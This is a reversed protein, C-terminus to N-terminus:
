DEGLGGCVATGCFLIVLPYCPGFYLLNVAPWSVADIFSFLLLRSFVAALLATSVAPLLGLIRRRSAERVSRIYFFLAVLFGAPILVRYLNGLWRLWRFLRATQRADYGAAMEQRSLEKVLVKLRGFDFEKGSLLQQAPISAVLGQRGQLVLACSDDWCDSSLTFTIHTHRLDLPGFAQSLTIYPARGASAFTAHVDLLADMIVEGRLTWRDRVPFLRGKIRQLFLNSYRGDDSYGPRINLTPLFMLDYVARGLSRVTQAAYRARWPPVWTDRPPLCSLRGSACASDVEEEIRRYCGRAAAASAYCGAKAAADRLAFRFWGGRFEGDCASMGEMWCGNQAWGPNFLRLLGAFTPSAQSARELAERCVPVHRQSAEPLVRTLAGYAARFEPQKLDVVDWVGYEKHNLWRVAGVGALAAVAVAAALLVPRALAANRRLTELLAAAALVGLAPVLELGEERTMWCAALAAGLAVAWLWPRSGARRQAALWGVAVAMVMVSLPGYLGERSVRLNELNYLLPNFLFAAFMIFLWWPHKVQPRLVSVFVWGAGAYLCSESLVLPVKLWFAGAIWIPLFPGKSLTLEDFPGLWAGRLIHDALKVFLADDYFAYGVAVSPIHSMLFLYIVAAVTMALWM